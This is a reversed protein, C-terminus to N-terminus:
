IDETIHQVCTPKFAGSKHLIVVHTPEGCEKCTDIIENVTVLFMKAVAIPVIATDSEYRNQIRINLEMEAIDNSLAILSHKQSGSLEQYPARFDDREGNRFTLSAFQSSLAQRLLRLNIRPNSM